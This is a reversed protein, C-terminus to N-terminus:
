AGGAASFALASSKQNQEESPEHVNGRYREDETKTKKNAMRRKQKEHTVEEM